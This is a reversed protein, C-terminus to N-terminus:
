IGPPSNITFESTAGDFLEANQPMERCELEPSHDIRICRRRYALLLRPPIDGFQMYDDWILVVAGVSRHQKGTLCKKVLHIIEDVRQPPTDSVVQQLTIPKAVNLVVIGYHPESVAKLQKNARTIAHKISNDNDTTINKCEAYIPLMLGPIHVKVDPYNDTELLEAKHNAMLHWAAFSIELMIDDFQTPHTLYNAIKAKLPEILQEISEGTITKLYHADLLFQGFLPLETKQEPFKIIGKQSIVKQCFAWRQYAPHRQNKPNDFWENPVIKELFLSLQRFFQLRDFAPKQQALEEELLVTDMIFSITTWNQFKVIFDHSINHNINEPLLFTKRSLPASGDARGLLVPVKGTAPNLTVTLQFHPILLMMSSVAKGALLVKSKIRTTFSGTGLNGKDPIYIESYEIELSPNAQRNVIPTM